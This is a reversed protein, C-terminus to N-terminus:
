RTAVQALAAKAEAAGEFQDGSKLAAQLNGRAEATQGAQIEAMALHFRVTPSAPQLKVAKELVTVADNVEGNKLRVWGDTDMFQVVQTDAFRSVLEHARRLSQPDSRASVLLFALNNAAVDSKPNKLLVAEYTRVADDTRGLDRYLQALALAASEAPRVATQARLMVAVAGEPDKQVLRVLALGHYPALIQPDLAIASDFAAASEPYRKLTLLVEGDLSHAHANKPAAAIVTQLREHAVASQRTSVLLRVLADLPEPAAPGLEIARSYDKLAEATLGQTEAILGSLYSGLPADPHAASAAAATARAAAYDKLSAQARFAALLYEPNGPERKLLDEAVSRAESLRGARSLLAVLDLAPAADAPNATLARRLVEEALAPEGNQEHAQALTRLIPVSNPQDRLVARLDAIASKPDGADLSLSARLLLADNDRPSQELVEAILNAAQDRRNGRIALEALADKAQLAAVARSDRAIVARLTAEAQEPNGQGEYIRALAFQLSTDSPNAAAMSALERTAAEQGQRSALFEVLALKLPTSGPLDHVGQRLTAEAADFRGAGGYFRALAVRHGPEDPKLAIMEKLVAELKAPQDAKAYQQALAARLDISKSLRRVGQELLAEADGRRAAANYLGALAAVTDESDPALKLAHEADAIGGQLDGQRARAVGRITLLQADDPHKELGPKVVEFARDTAGALLLLRALHTRAALHDPNAEIAGQYYNVADRPAALLEAVHGNEYRAEGDNPAIQLSNRFEVRAKELNGAALYSQGKALFHAKRSEASGCGVLVVSVALLALAWRAARIVRM